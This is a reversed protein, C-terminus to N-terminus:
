LFFLREILQIKGYLKTNERMIFLMCNKIMKEPIIDILTKLEEITKFTYIKKYSNLSWDTDHPLHAWMTWNSNLHHMKEHNDEMTVSSEM